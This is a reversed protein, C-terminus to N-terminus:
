RVRVLLMGLVNGRGILPARADRTENSRPDYTGVLIGRADSAIVKGTLSQREFRGFITGRHNRIVERAPSVIEVAPLVDMM